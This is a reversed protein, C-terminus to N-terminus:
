RHVCLRAGRRRMGRKVRGPGCVGHMSERMVGLGDSFPATAKGADAAVRHASSREGLYARGHGRM